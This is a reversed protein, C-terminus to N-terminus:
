QMDSRTTLTDRPLNESVCEPVRGEDDDIGQRSQKWFGTRDRPERLSGARQPCPALCGM